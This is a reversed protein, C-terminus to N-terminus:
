LVGSELPHPELPQATGNGNSDLARTSGVQCNPWGSFPHPHPHPHPYVSSSCLRLRLRDDADADVESRCAAMVSGWGKSRSLAARWSMARAAHSDCTRACLMPGRPPISRPQRSPTHAAHAPPAPALPPSTASRSSGRAARAWSRRRGTRGVRWEKARRGARGGRGQDLWVWGSRPQSTSVAAAQRPPSAQRLSPTKVGRRDDCGSVSTSWNSSM